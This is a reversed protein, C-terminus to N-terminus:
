CLSFFFNSFDKGQRAKGGRGEGERFVNQALDERWCFANVYLGPHSWCCLKAFARYIVDIEGREM